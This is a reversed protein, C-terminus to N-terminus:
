AVTNASTALDLRYGKVVVNEMPHFDLEPVHVFGMHEYMQVAAQMVDTTHLGLVKYGSNQARKICELMLMKGIGYGRVAPDVALLRVEPGAVDTAVDAKYASMTPPYLQVSGIIKGAREAVIREIQGEKALTDLLVQRYVPWFLPSMLTAYQEYAALTLAHIVEREGQHAERINIQVNKQEMTSKGQQWIILTNKIPASTM